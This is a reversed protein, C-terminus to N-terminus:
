NTRQFVEFSKFPLSHFFAINEDPIGKTTGMDDKNLTLDIIEGNMHFPSPPGSLHLQSTPTGQPVMLPSYVRTIELEDEMKTQNM